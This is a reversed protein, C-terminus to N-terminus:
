FSYGALLSFYWTDKGYIQTMDSGLIKNYQYRAKTYFGANHSYNLSVDIGASNLLAKEIGANIMNYKAGGWILNLVSSFNLERTIEKDWGIGHTFVFAGPYASIDCAFENLLSFQGAPYSLNLIYETTNPYGTEETFLYAAFTNKVSLKKLNFEHILYLDTENYSFPRKLTNNEGTVEDPLYQNKPMSFNFWVGATINGWKDPVEYVAYVAPQLVYNDELVIGRFIYKSCFESETYFYLAPAKEQTSTSQSIILTCPLLLILVFFKYMLM